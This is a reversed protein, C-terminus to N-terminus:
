RPPIYHNDHVSIHIHAIIAERRNMRNDDQLGQGKLTIRTGHQTGPHIKIETEGDLTPISVTAGLAAQAADIPVRLHLNIGEREFPDPAHVHIQLYLYGAPGGNVGNNGKDRIRMRM